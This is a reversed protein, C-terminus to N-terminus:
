TSMTPKGRGGLCRALAAAERRGPGLPRSVFASENLYRIEYCRNKNPSLPSKSDRGLRRGTPPTKRTLSPMPPLPVLAAGRSKLNPLFNAGMQELHPRQLNGTIWLPLPAAEAQAGQTTATQHPRAAVEQALHGAPAQAEDQIAPKQAQVGVGALVRRHPHNETPLRAHRQRGILHAKGLGPGAGKAM